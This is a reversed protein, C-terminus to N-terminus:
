EASSGTSDKELIGNQKFIEGRKYFIEKDGVLLIRSSHMFREMGNAPWDIEFDHVVDGTPNIIKLRIKTEM